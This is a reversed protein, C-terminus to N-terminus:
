KLDRYFLLREGIIAIKEGILELKDTQVLRGKIAIKEGIHIEEKIISDMTDVLRIKFHDVEQGFMRDVRLNIFCNKTNTYDEVVGMLMFYNLM